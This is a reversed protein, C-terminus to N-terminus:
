SDAHHVSALAQRRDGQGPGHIHRGPNSSWELGANRDRRSPLRAGTGRGDRGLADFRTQHNPLACGLGRRRPRSISKCTRIARQTPRRSQLSAPLRHRPRSPVCTPTHPAPHSLHQRGYQRWLRFVLGRAEAPRAPSRRSIPLLLALAALVQHRTPARKTSIEWSISADSGVVILTLMIKNNLMIKNYLRYACNAETSRPAHAWAAFAHSAPMCRHM